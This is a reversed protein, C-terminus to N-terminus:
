KRLTECIPSPLAPLARGKGALRLHQRRWEEGRCGEKGQWKKDQEEGGVVGNRRRRMPRRRWEKRRDGMADLM